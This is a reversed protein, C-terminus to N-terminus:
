KSFRLKERKKKKKKGKGEKVTECNIGVMSLSKGSPMKMRGPQETSKLAYRLGSRSVDKKPSGYLSGCTRAKIDSEPRPPSMELFIHGLKPQMGQQLRIKKTPSDSRGSGSSLSRGALVEHHHHSYPSGGTSPSMGDYTDQISDFFSRDLEQAIVSSSTPSAPRDHQPTNFGDGPVSSEPLHHFMLQRSFEDMVNEVTSFNGVFALAPGNKPNIMINSPLVAGSGAKTVCDWPM